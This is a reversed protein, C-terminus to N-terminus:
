SALPAFGDAAAAAALGVDFCAFTTLRPDASRAARACALQIADYARLPNTAVLAAADALVADALAVALLVTGAAGRALDAAFARVLLACDQASLEGLRQKRWLAAPVEVRAVGSVM